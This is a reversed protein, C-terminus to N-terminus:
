QDLAGRYAHDYVNHSYIDMNDYIKQRGQHQNVMGASNAPPPLRGYKLQNQRHMELVKLNDHSISGLNGGSLHRNPSAAAALSTLLGFDRKIIKQRSADTGAYVIEKIKMAQMRLEKDKEKLLLEYNQIKLNQKQNHKEFMKKQM